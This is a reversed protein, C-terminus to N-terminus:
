ADETGDITLDIEYVEGLMDLTERILDLAEHICASIEGQETMHKDIDLMVQQLSRAATEADSM